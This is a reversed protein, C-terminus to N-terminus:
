ERLRVPVTIWQEPQILQQVEVEHLGEREEVVRQFAVSEVSDGSAITRSRSYGACRVGYPELDLGRFNLGCFRYVIEREDDGRNTVVSRFQLSDGPEVFITGDVTGTGGRVELTQALDGVAGDIVISRRGEDPLLPTDDCRAAAAALLLVITLGLLRGPMGRDTM